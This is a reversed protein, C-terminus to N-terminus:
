IRTSDTRERATKCLGFTRRHIPTLGHEKIAAIHFKTGYGQNTNFGYEPWVEHYAAMQADRYVKAVISAAGISEFWQDGKIVAVSPVSPSRDAILLGGDCLLFEMPIKSQISCRFAADAAAQFTAERINCSDVAISDRIGLSWQACGMIKEALFERKKASLKKSDRIGVIGHGPPLLVCAAVVPGAFPGRGVEDLGAVHTVNLQSLFEDAEGQDTFKVEKPLEMLELVVKERVGEQTPL